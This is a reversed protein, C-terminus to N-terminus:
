NYFYFRLILIYDHICYTVRIRVFFEGIKQGVPTNLPNGGLTALLGAM